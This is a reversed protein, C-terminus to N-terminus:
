FLTKKIVLFRWWWWGGGACGGGGGCGGMRPYPTKKTRLIAVLSLLSLCLVFASIVLHVMTRCLSSVRNTYKHSDDLLHAFGYVDILKFHAAM